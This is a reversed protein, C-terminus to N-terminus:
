KQQPAPLNSPGPNPQSSGMLNYEQQITQRVQAVQEPKVDGFHNGWSNRIYSAVAAIQQDGLKNAFSPMIGRGLLIQAVVYDTIGLFPDDRFRPGAGGFGMEGHCAFCGSQMYVHSGEDSGANQAFATGTGALAVLAAAHLAQRFVGAIALRFDTGHLRM